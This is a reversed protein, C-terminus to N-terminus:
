WLCIGLFYIDVKFILLEGKLLELVRYVFVGILYLYILSVFLNEDGEDLM